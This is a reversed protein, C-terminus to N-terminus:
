PQRKPVWHVAGAASPAAVQANSVKAWHDSTGTAASAVTTPGIRAIPRIAWTTGSGNRRPRCANRSVSQVTPQNAQSKPQMTESLWAKNQFTLNISAAVRRRAM